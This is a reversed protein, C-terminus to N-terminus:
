GLDWCWAVAERVGATGGVGVFRSHGLRLMMEGDQPLGLGNNGQTTAVTKTPGLSQSSGSISLWGGANVAQRISGSRIGRTMGDSDRRGM